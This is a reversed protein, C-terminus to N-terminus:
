GTYRAKHSQFFEEMKDVTSPRSIWYGQAQKCGFQEIVRFQEATEIGEAVTDMELTAALAIITRVIAIDDPDNTVGDVFSKDIKIKHAPIRKLYSLSSYGSGFDDIAIQVGMMKLRGLIEISAHPDLMAASETIELELQSPELGTNRLVEIVKSVLNPDQFQRTSLNVAVWLDHGADNWAKTQACATHLVWEGLPLILGSEEAVQIFEGPSRLKGDVDQWRVLAEVGIIRGSTFEVIPQYVLRFHDKNLADRLQQELTIRQRIKEGINDQYIVYANRGQRKAEYMATDAHKILTGTDAAHEPFIAVGMSATVSLNHEGVQIPRNFLNLLRECTHITSARNSGPLIILFEDGAFRSIVDVNRLVNKIADAVAILLQDGVAHGLSDNIDKFRDLDLFVVSFNQGTLRVLNVEASLIEEVAQRNPLGTLVDQRAQKILELNHSRERATVRYTIFYFIGMFVVFSALVPANRRWWRAWLYDAPSSVYAYFPLKPLRQFAGIREGDSPQWPSLGSFIGGRLDPDARVAKAVPGQSLRGYIKTPDPAPWRAQQLGDERLLGIYSDPPIPLHQLFSNNSELPIAAQILFQPVGQADRIVHRFPFRWQKIVKGYEPPGIVYPAPNQLVAIFEKLYAQDERFDPLPQGKATVTNILMQGQPNFVAMAGIEPYRSQFRVLLERSNETSNLVDREALLEGLPELANGLNEFFAQSATALYSSLITLNEEVDQREQNWTYLGYSTLAVSGAILFAAVVGRLLSAFPTVKDPM